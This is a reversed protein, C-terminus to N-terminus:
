LILSARHEVKRVNPQSPLIGECTACTTTDFDVLRGPYTEPSASKPYGKQSYQVFAVARACCEALPFTHQAQAQLLKLAAPENDFAPSCQCM